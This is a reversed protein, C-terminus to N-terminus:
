IKFSLPAFVERALGMHHQAGKRRFSPGAATSGEGFHAKEFQPGKFLTSTRTFFTGAWVGPFRAAGVPRLRVRPGTGPGVVLTHYTFFTGTALVPFDTRPGHAPSIFGPATPFFTHLAWFRARQAGQPQAKRATPWTGVGPRFTYFFPGVALLFTGWLPGLFLPFVGM